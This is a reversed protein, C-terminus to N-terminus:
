VDHAEARVLLYPRQAHGNSTLQDVHKQKFVFSNASQIGKKCCIDLLDECNQEGDGEEVQSDGRCIRQPNYECQDTARNIGCHLQLLSFLPQSSLRRGTYNWEEEIRM